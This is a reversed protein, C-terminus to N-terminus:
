LLKNILEIMQGRFRICEEKTLIAYTSGDAAEKPLKLGLKQYNTIKGDAICESRKLYAWGGKQFSIEGTSYLHYIQNGNPSDNPNILGTPSSIYHWNHADNILENLQKSEMMKM